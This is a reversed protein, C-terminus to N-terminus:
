LQIVEDKLNNRLFSVISVWKKELQEVNNIVPAYREGSSKALLDIIGVISQAGYKKVLRNAAFRDQKSVKTIGYTDSFKNIVRDVDADGYGLHLFGEENLRDVIMQATPADGVITTVLELVYDKKSM